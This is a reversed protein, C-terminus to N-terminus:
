GRMVYDFQVWEGAHQEFWLRGPEDVLWVHSNNAPSFLGRYIDTAPHIVFRKIANRSINNEEISEVKCAVPPALLEWLDGMEESAEESHETETTFDQPEGSKPVEDPTMAFKDWTHWPIKSVHQKITPRFTFEGLGSGELLKRFPDTVVASSGVPPVLPFFIAPAFPGARNLLLNGSEKDRSALGRMLFSGYDGWLKAATLRFVVAENRAEEEEADKQGDFAAKAESLRRWHLMTQPLMWTGFIKYGTKITYSCGKQLAPFFGEVALSRTKKDGEVIM